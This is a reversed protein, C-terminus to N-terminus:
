SNDVPANRNKIDERVRQWQENRYQEWNRNNRTYVDFLDRTERSWGPFMDNVVDRTAWYPINTLREERGYAFQWTYEDSLWVQIGRRHAEGAWLLVNPAELTKERRDSLRVASIDILEYGLHIAMAIQYSFTCSYAVPFPWTWLSDLAALPLAVISPYIIGLLGTNSPQVYIPFDHEKEMWELHERREKKLDEYRHIQFWGTPKIGAPETLVHLGNCSWFDAGPTVIEPNAFDFNIQITKM